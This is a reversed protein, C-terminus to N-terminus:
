KPRRKTWRVACPLVRRDAGGGLYRGVGNCTAPTGFFVRGVSALRAARLGAEAPLRGVAGLHKDDM